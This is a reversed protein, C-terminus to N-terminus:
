VKRESCSLLQLPKTIGGRRCRSSWDDQYVAMWGKQEAWLSVSDEYSLFSIDIIGGGEQRHLVFGSGGGCIGPVWGGQGAPQVPQM